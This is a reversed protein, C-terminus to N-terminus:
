TAMRRHVIVWFRMSLEFFREKTQLFGNSFHIFGFIIWSGPPQNLNCPLELVPKGKLLLYTDINFSKFTASTSLLNGAGEHETEKAM